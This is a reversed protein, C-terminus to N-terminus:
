MSLYKRERQGWECADDVKEWMTRLGLLTHHPLVSSELGVEEKDHTAVQEDQKHFPYQKIPM